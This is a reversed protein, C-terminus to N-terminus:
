AMDIGVRDHEKVQYWHKQICHIYYLLKEFVIPLENHMTDPTESLHVRHCPPSNLPLSRSSARIHNEPCQFNSHETMIELKSPYAFLGCKLAPKKTM